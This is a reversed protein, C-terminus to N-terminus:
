IPTSDEYLDEPCIDIADNWYVCMNDAKVTRFFGINKLPEYMPINLLPKVDFKKKEGTNFLLLLEFDDTATVTKVKPTTYKGHVIENNM